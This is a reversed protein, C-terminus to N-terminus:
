AATSGRRASSCRRLRACSSACRPLLPVSASPQLGRTCLTAPRQRAPNCGRTCDTAAEQTLNCRCGEGALSPQRGGGGPAAPGCVVRPAHELPAPEGRGAVGRSRLAPRPEDNHALVSRLAARRSTRAARADHAGRLVGRTRQLQAPRRAARLPPPVGRRDAPPAAPVPQETHGGAPRLAAALAAHTASHLAAQVPRHVLM